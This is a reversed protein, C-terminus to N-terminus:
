QCAECEGKSATVGAKSYCYYLSMIMPNKFAYEHIEAIYEEDEDANFFLNLSQSQDIYMQRAAALNIIAKQNIEFATKFVNKEHESLWKVLQVSGQADVVEKLTRKNYIGREKMLNLLTPNFRDVEGAATMQIFTMAPDPNIGESVGGMILATSKTPAIAMRHTNRVGYGVCWESEGLEKAMWESARKSEADIHSFLEDNFAVAEFSDFPISNEQLYTHFGCVGLGLARGAKTFAIAKEIGPISAGKQIFDEAVCDLFVTAVYVADTDKWENYKAANMSSLVCTFTYDESSHLAIESCLNSCTVYLGRDVYMQPRMANVKDKFFFYGKGTVMKMKMMKQFRRIMEKDLADLMNIFNDTIIWGLNADDPNQEVFTAIEEFDNHEPEIYGAWAGRRSTGQAVDRMDQVFGKLVPLVGSAKGGSSIKAGRPRIAGLYGSTGFGYKTLMAAERRASYFGDISDQIYGGSCSVPMGKNTGMNSLVPTSPSLWGNWFLNFFKEEWYTSNSLYQAATKAIIEYRAKPTQGPMLYKEKLLQYGGTTMWSPMLSQDQLSKREESLDEYLNKEGVNNIEKGHLNQNAGIAITHHV